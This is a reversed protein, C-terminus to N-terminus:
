VCSTLGTKFQLTIRIGCKKKVNVGRSDPNRVSSIKNMTLLVNTEVSYPSSSSLLRLRELDSLQVQQMFGEDDNEDRFLATRLTACAPLLAALELAYHMM